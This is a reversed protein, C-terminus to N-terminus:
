IVTLMEVAEAVLPLHPQAVQAAAAAVGAQLQHVVPVGATANKTACNKRVDGNQEAIQFGSRFNLIFLM